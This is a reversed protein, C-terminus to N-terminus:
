SQLESTHEESRIRRTRLWERATQQDSQPAPSHVNPDRANSIVLPGYGDGMSAGCPLLAYNRSVYAYAHISIASIDLEERVCRENLTQIDELRQDFGYGRLDIKDEAIAYFM